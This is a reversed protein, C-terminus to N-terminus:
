VNNNIKIELQRIKVLPITESDKHHDGDCSFRTQSCFRCDAEESEQKPVESFQFSLERYKGKLADLLKLYSGWDPFKQLFGIKWRCFSNYLYLDGLNTAIGM